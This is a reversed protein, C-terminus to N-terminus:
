QFSCKDGCSFFKGSLYYVYFYLATSIFLIVFAGLRTKRQNLADPLYLVWFVSFFEKMRHAVVPFDICGYYIAIGIAELVV